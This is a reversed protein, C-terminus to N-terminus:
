SPDALARKMTQLHELLRAVDHLGRELAVVDGRVRELQARPVADLAGRLRGYLVLTGALGDVGTPALRQRLEVTFHVLGALLALIQTPDDDSRGDGFALWV